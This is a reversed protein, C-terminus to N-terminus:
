QEGWTKGSIIQYVTSLHIGYREALAVCRTGNARLRRLERVKRFTLKATPSNEGRIWTNVGKTAESMLASFGEPDKQHASRGKSLMDRTNDQVTGLFLHDPNVCARVDCKHLVWLGDPIEGKNMMWSVRHAGHQTGQYWFAGYGSSYCAAIWLWCGSNPEPMFKEEFRAEAILATADTM